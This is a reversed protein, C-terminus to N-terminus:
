SGIPMPTLTIVGAARAVVYIGCSATGDLDIGVILIDGKGETFRHADDDLYNAADVVAKADNTLLVFIGRTVGGLVPGDSIRKLASGKSAM